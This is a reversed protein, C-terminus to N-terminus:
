SLWVAERSRSAKTQAATLVVTARPSHPAQYAAWTQAATLVVTVAVVAPGSWPNDGLLARMTDVQQLGATVLALTLGAALTSWAGAVVKAEVPAKVPAVAALEDLVGERVAAAADEYDVGHGDVDGPYECGCALRHLQAALPSVPRRWTEDIPGPDVTLAPSRGASSDLDGWEYLRQPPGGTPPDAPSSHVGPQVAPTRATPSDLSPAAFLHPDTETPM